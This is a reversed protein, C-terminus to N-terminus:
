PASVPEGFKTDIQVGLNEIMDTPLVGGIFIFVADTPLIHTEDEADRYVVSEERIETLNTEPLFEVAGEAIATEIREINQPKPRTINARRYSLRVETGSQEALACAAEVASDGGGVVTIRDRAYREPELLSYAVHPQDEGPIGLKRPM